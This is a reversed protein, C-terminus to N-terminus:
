EHEKIECIIKNVIVNVNVSYGTNTNVIQM